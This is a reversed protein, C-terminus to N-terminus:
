DTNEYPPVLSPHTYNLALAVLRGQRHRISKGKVRFAARM